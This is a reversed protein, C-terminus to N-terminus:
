ADRMEHTDPQNGSQHETCGHVIFVSILM